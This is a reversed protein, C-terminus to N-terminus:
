VYDRPTTSHELQTAVNTFTASGPLYLCPLAMPAPQTHPQPSDGPMACAVQPQRTSTCGACCGFLIAFM